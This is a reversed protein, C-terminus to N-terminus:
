IQTNKLKREATQWSPLKNKVILEYAARADRMQGESELSKALAFLSRAIWYCAAPHAKAGKDSLIQSTTLWRVENAERERGARELAFSWKFAAESKADLPMEPLYFLREFIVAADAARKPQALISDGLGLWAIYIQPHDPFKNIIENYLSRAEAFANILRLIEAQSMRAYFNRPDEPYESCLKDLISLAAKYSADVGIMRSYHAADSMAEYRYKGRPYLDALTQCIKQASAYRMEAAESRAQYLYSIQAAQSEPYESRLTKYIEYAIDNEGLSEYCRAKMLMTNSAIREASTPDEFKIKPLEKLVKDCISITKRSDTEGDNLRARLWLMRLRVTGPVGSDDSIAREIRELAKKTEGDERLKSIM